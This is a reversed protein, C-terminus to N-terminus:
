KVCLHAMFISSGKVEHVQGQLIDSINKSLSVHPLQCQKWGLPVYERALPLVEGM